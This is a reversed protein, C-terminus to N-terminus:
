TKHALAREFHSGIVRERGVIPAPPDDTPSPRPPDQAPPKPPPPTPDPLPPLPEPGGPPTDNSHTDM